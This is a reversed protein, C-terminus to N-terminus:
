HYGYNLTLHRRISRMQDNIYEEINIHRKM